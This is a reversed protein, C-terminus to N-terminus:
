LFRHMDTIFRVSRKRSVTHPQMAPKAYNVVNLVLHLAEQSHQQQQNQQHKSCQQSHIDLQLAIDTQTATSSTAKSCLSSVCHEEASDYASDTTQRCQKADSEELSHAGERYHMAHSVLWAMWDHQQSEGQSFTEVDLAPPLSFNQAALKAAVNCLLQVIRGEQALCDETRVAALAQDLVTEICLLRNQLEQM